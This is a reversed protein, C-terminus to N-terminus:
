KTTVSKAASWASYVKKGSVTKYTRVRVFYKKKAKLKTVKKSVTTAKSINVTKAGSTFKNNLAYQLEYGTTQKTQKNWKATFGKKVATVKSLKTAAPVITFTKNLTGTYALKGTITVTATGVNINNKYAVTYDTGAKLTKGGVTIKLGQTVAKGTYVKNSIGTVSAAAISTKNIEVIQKEGCFWCMKKQIGKPRDDFFEEPGSLWFHHLCAKCLEVNCDANKGLSREGNFVEAEIRLGNFGAEAIKDGYVTVTKGDVKWCNAPVDYDTDDDWKYGKAEFEIRLKDYNLDDRTSLDFSWSSDDYVSVNGEEFWIDYELRNFWYEQEEVEYDNNDNLFHANLHIGTDWEGKRTFSYVDGTAQNQGVERGNSDTIQLANEDYGWDTKKVEYTKYNEDNYGEDAAPRYKYERVEFKVNDVTEGIGLEKPLTTPYVVRYDTKIEFWGDEFAKEENPKESKSDYVAAKVICDEDIFDEDDALDRFNVRAKRDNADPKVTAFETGDEVTWVVSLGDMTHEEHDGDFYKHIAWAELNIGTGPLGVNLDDESEMYVEYVDKKIHLYMERTEPTEDLKKYTVEFTVDGFEKGARYYWWKNEDDSDPHFDELLDEGEKVEVNTVEADLREGDPYESNEVYVDINGQIDGDWYPLVDRHENFAYEEQAYRFEVDNFGAIMLLENNDGYGKIQVAIHEPANHESYLNSIAVGNITIIKNEDDYTYCGNLEDWEKDPYPIAVLGEYRTVGEVNLAAEDTLQFVLSGDDFVRRPGETLQELEFFQVNEFPDDEAYTPATLLGISMFIMSITVLFASLLLTSKKIMQM